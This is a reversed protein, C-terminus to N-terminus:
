YLSIFREGDMNGSWLISFILLPVSAKCQFENKNQDQNNCKRGYIYVGVFLKTKYNQFFYEM